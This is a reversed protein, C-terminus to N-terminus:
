FAVIFGLSIMEIDSEPSGRDGADFVRTYEARVGYIDMLSMAVGVGAAFDTTSSTEFRLQGGDIDASLRPSTFQVGGRAYIEWRHSLPLIALAHIALASMKGTLRTQATLPEEGYIGETRARYQVKGYDAFMGEVAFHRSIRYGIVAHYGTDKTDLSSTHQEPEFGVEPFFVNLFYNDFQEASLDRETSGFAGGFYLGLQASQAAPAFALAASAVLAWGILRLM